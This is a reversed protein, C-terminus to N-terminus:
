VTMLSLTLSYFDTSDFAARSVIPRAKIPEAGAWIVQFSRGDALTLTMPAFPQELKARLLNVTNRTAWAYDRGGELTIPRGAQRTGSQVILAGTLSYQTDVAVPSWDYEDLWSLDPLPISALTHTAMRRHERARPPSILPFPHRQLM